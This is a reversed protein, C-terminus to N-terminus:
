TPKLVGFIENFYVDFLSESLPFWGKNSIGQTTLELLGNDLILLCNYVLSKPRMGSERIISKLKQLM